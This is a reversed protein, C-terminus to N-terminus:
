EKQLRVKMTGDEQKELSLLVTYGEYTSNRYKLIRTENPDSFATGVSAQNEDKIRIYVSKTPDHPVVYDSKFQKGTATIICPNFPNDMM